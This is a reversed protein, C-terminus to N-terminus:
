NKLVSILLYMKMKFVQLPSRNTTQFAVEVLESTPISPVNGKIILTTVFATQVQQEFNTGGGGKSFVSGQDSM